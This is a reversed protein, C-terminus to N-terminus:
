APVMGAHQELVDGIQECHLVADHRPSLQTARAGVIAVHLAPESASLEGPDM